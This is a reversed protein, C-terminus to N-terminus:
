INNLLPMSQFTLKPEQKNKPNKKKQGTFQVHWAPRYIMGIKPCPCHEMQPNKTNVYFILLTWGSDVEKLFKEHDPFSM